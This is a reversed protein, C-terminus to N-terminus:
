GMVAAGCCYVFVEPKTVAFPVATAAEGSVVLTVLGIITGIGSSYQIVEQHSCGLEKFFHREEYNSTLADCGVGVQGASVVVLLRWVPVRPTAHWCCSRPVHSKPSWAFWELLSARLWPHLIVVNGSLVRIDLNVFCV